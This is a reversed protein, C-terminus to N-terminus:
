PAAQQAEKKSSGPASDILTNFTAILRPLQSPDSAGVFQNESVACEIWPQGEGRLPGEDSDESIAEMASGELNTGILNVKLLWGPNDLSTLSVGYGHEWEGDCHSLYWAILKSLDVRTPDIDDKTGTTKM